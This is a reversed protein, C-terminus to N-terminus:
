EAPRYFDGALWRALLELQASNLQDAFAPMANHGDDGAYHAQPDAIMRQLWDVGGYGTLVPFLDTSLPKEDFVIQDKVVTLPTMSHCDICADIEGAKLKGSSFIELGRRVKPDAPSLADSRRSQAYLFEALAAFDEANAPDLLKPGNSRSWDQMSGELIDKAAEAAAGQTNALPAFTKPFDTLVSKIWDRSGFRVSNREHPDALEPAVPKEPFQGSWAQPQHCSICYTEFLRPGQTLPDTQLLTAAGQPPIGTPSLALQTVREADHHAATVAARFDRGARNDAWWDEYLALSTLTGAIGVMAWLFAVNIRHGGRLHAILPMLIIVTM